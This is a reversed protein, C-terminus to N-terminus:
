VPRFDNNINKQKRTYKLVNKFYYDDVEADELGIPTNVMLQTCTYLEKNM